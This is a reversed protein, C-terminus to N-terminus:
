DEGDDKKPRTLDRALDALTGQDGQLRDIEANQEPTLEKNRRRLEDFYETRENIEEQLSKLMKVQATASIGDGSGGGGGGGQGGGQQQGGAKPKEPKLSEILQQFRKAAGKAARQTAEDTKLAQLREAAEGMNAVARKLTLAFVQAGELKEILEGTEDKLGEQVRGLSRVGNRQAITLPGGRENRLKEYDEAGKAINEQREGLSKLHDAMKVLQEMALQEEADKRAQQLEDQAEDLDTLAEDEQQEAQEGQDQDLDQQAQGMKGSAKQGAQAAGGANLKALKKLQRDLEKQIEAQEKALKKLQDARQKADPNNRAERTKKLNEAQRQRLKNLEAEANKLEKVLRALERERRNQISDVLDKLDQRVQEQGNRAAGMQNKELQDAADGMKAATGQKRSDQAAERMAAAALPDSEELRKAMEDMKAQLDQLEKGLNNQRSALNALDAKQEPGLKDPTKGVLDPKNAAEATQKMAQEQEKLLNQADKVVGRYTEFESLGELMKELEDAIAKQNTGAEKLALQAPDAPHRPSGSDPKAPQGKGSQGKSAENKGAEGKSAQNKGAQKEGAEGKSAEGKSAQNKAAEAKGAQNKGAEGKNSEAQDPQGPETPAPPSAADQDPNGELSKTARTLGQEAPGLHKQRIQDVGAQMQEMQKQADPNPIKFNKLDDLFHRIKQDLGDSPSNIRSAVQRQVMAANKLEDRNVTDTQDTKAITRLADEVPTIAQKQMALIRATEERIERRADDLERLIDEDALVRLRIERSKGLNPGKLNDFDRAEAHFTIIAGPALNLGALNWEYRVEQHKVPAAATGNGERPAEWLPLAVEQTPESGASAVKYLLRASQIGFDDAVSFVIPVVAKAPVDRDHVPEEITVRPAEDAVARVDTRIAERNKFGETDLLEFWFPTSATLVFATKLGTGAGDVAVLAGSTTEGLHLDARAIPKSALAAVEIRTGIVARIQNRGPAMTQPELGTYPPSVLRVTLDNLTPPAVVKVAVNRISASDDGAAVSFTFPRSVSEIRGRFIGGEVARLSETETEGDEYRYTARASAPMREGPGIAVALTFSDGRAVKRPTEATLLALHTQQPWRDQGFPLFLRRLAIRSLEPSAAGIATAALLSAAALGAARLVPKLEIVKRFDIAQTEEITQRVTAARMSASGHRDDDASLHLFQVTSALRDNLGPWREEIKLAIDLDAFRIFLPALVYKAMLWIAFGALGILAAVRVVADLHISWDALGLLIVVPVLLGIVWSLGRLALLRRVQNRLTGIRAELRSATV